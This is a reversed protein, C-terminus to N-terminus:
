HRYLFYISERESANVFGIVYSTSPNRTVVSTLYIKKKRLWSRLKLKNVLKVTAVLTSFASFGVTAKFTCLMHRRLLLISYITTLANFEALNIAEENSACVSESDAADM